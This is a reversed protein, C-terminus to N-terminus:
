SNTCVVESRARRGSKQRLANAIPLPLAKGDNKPKGKTRGSENAGVTETVKRKKKANHEMAMFPSGSLESKLTPTKSIRKREHKNGRVPATKVTAMVSSKEASKQESDHDDSDSDVEAYIGDAAEDDFIGSLNAVNFRTTAAAIKATRCGESLAVSVKAARGEEYIEDVPEKSTADNLDGLTDDITQNATSNRRPDGGMDRSDGMSDGKQEGGLREHGPPVWCESGQIIDFCANELTRLSNKTARVRSKESDKAGQERKVFSLDEWAEWLTDQKRSSAKKGHDDCLSKHLVMKVRSECLYACKPCVYVLSHWLYFGPSKSYVDIENLKDIDQLSISSREIRFFPTAMSLHTALQNPHLIEDVKLLVANMSQFHLTDDWACGGRTAIQTSRTSLHTPAFLLNSVASEDFHKLSEKLRSLCNMELCLIKTSSPDVFLYPLSAGPSQQPNPSRRATRLTGEMQQPLNLVPAFFAFGAPPGGLRKESEEGNPAVLNALLNSLNYVVQGATAAIDRVECASCHDDSTTVLHTATPQTSRIGSPSSKEMGDRCIQLAAQLNGRWHALSSSSNDFYTTTTGKTSEESPIPRRRGRQRQRLRLRALAITISSHNGVFPCATCLSLVGIAEDWLREEMSNFVEERHEVAPGGDNRNMASASELFAETEAIQTFLHAYLCWVGATKERVLMVNIMARQKHVKQSALLGVLMLEAQRYSTKLTDHCIELAVRIQGRALHTRTLHHLVRLNNDAAPSFLEYKPAAPKLPILKTAKSLNPNDSRTQRQIAPKKGSTRRETKIIEVDSDSDDDDDDDTSEVIYVQPAVKRTPNTRPVQAATGSSAEPSGIRRKKKPRRHKSTETKTAATFHVKKTTGNNNIRQQPQKGRASKMSRAAPMPSNLLLRPPRKMEPQKRAPMPSNLLSPSPRKRKKDQTPAPSNLFSRPQQHIQKTTPPPKSPVAASSTSPIRSSPKARDVREQGKLAKSGGGGSSTATSLKAAADLKKGSVVLVSENNQSDVTRSTRRRQERTNNGGESHDRVNLQGSSHPRTEHFHNRLNAQTAADTVHGNDSANDIALRGIRLNRRGTKVIAKNGTAYNSSAPRPVAAEAIILSNEM